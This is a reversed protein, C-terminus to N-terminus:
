SRRLAVQSALDSTNLKVSKPHIRWSFDSASQGIETQSPAGSTVVFEPHPTNSAIHSLIAALVAEDGANDYGYYGSLVIRM